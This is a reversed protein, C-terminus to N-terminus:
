ADLFSARPITTGPAAGGTNNVLADLGGFREAAVAVVHAAATPEMLDAAVHVLPGDLAELEPSSSRSAAVVRMGEALLTKTIALGIGRSAGTVVAVRGSLNLDM